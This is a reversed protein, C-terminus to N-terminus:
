SLFADERDIGPPELGRIWRSDAAARHTENIKRCGHAV